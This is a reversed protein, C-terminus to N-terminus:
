NQIEYGYIVLKDCSTIYSDHNIFCRYGVHYYKKYQYLNIAIIIHKLINYPIKLPVNLTFEDQTQNYYFEFHVDKITLIVPIMFAFYPNQSSITFEFNPTYLEKIQNLLHQIM